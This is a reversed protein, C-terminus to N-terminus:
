WSSGDLCEQECGCEEPDRDEEFCACELISRESEPDNEGALERQLREIFIELAENKSMAAATYSEITYMRVEEQDSVVEEKPAVEGVVLM